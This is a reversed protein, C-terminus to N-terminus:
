GHDRLATEIRKVHPSNIRRYIALAQRLLAAGDDGHGEHLRCNGIGELARAEELPATIARALALAQAHRDHSDTLSSTDLALEGASNLAEAEGYRLGLDRYLQLAREQSAAAAAYDGTLRQMDGLQNLAHAEGWRHGLDRYLQLAREQSTTAAAYNGTARQVEGLDTLASAQGNRDSLDRYLELAQNQCATAAAYQGTLYQVEGLDNLAVAEGLRDGLNRYLELARTLSAAAAPYDGTLYRILGLYSITNAEGLRNGLARFLELAPNLSAVAAPYDATLHKIDGLDSLAVAEGLRDGVRRAASLATRHLVLAQGWHGHTRLFGHMVIPITIAYSPRDRLAAYDVAAHLNLREADMWRAAKDRTDLQPAHSPRTCAIAALGASTRRALHRDAARATHLYYSLLRDIAADREAPDDAAALARAHERILDHFRYRGEVPENILHHAYLDDLLVSVAALDNGDLATAAHADIDDGPQLGLRRFLRQQDATLERYSLDFAAAISDDEARMAALRDQASALGAGLATASWIPHHKLQGAMLSIALPLYGCLRVVHAVGAEGVELGPRGVLRVFLEAADDPELIDITIPLAEPLAALRRRSTVLVLTGASGPLLPRVHESSTADDLVLLVKKGSLRDRWLGARAEVGAPIQQSAVGVCALLTALADAPSVPPQGPTHGHLRLFIQGDPFRTALLHAAHVAFTTKGIGAMGDIAHIGVVGSGAMDDKLAERLRVLETERGTFSAIDRPLTRTAAGGGTGPATGPEGPAPDIGSGRGRATAEFQTRAIGQLGLADALLRATDKRATLNIGRELDSISRPSLSAAAALEEQTLGAENRLQRLLEAFSISRHAAM